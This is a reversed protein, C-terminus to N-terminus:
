FVVLCPVIAKKIIISQSRAEASNFFIVRHFSVKLFERCQMHFTKNEMPYQLIIRKFQLTM